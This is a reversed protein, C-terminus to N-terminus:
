IQQGSATEKICAIRFEHIKLQNQFLNNRYFIDIKYKTYNHSATLMFKARKIYQKHKNYYKSRDM